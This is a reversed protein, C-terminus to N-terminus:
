PNTLTALDITLTVDTITGDSLSVDRKVPKSPKSNQRFITASLEYMGAPIGEILFHGRADVQPPRLYSANEGPKTLRVFIRADAPLPGNEINVAGRLTATGYGVIVRVGTVQEGDKVELRPVVIGDREIRSISFGKLPYPGNTASLSISVAGTALGGLRFSGDAAIPSSASSAYSASTQVYGRMQMQTLKSLAAKDESELVVVGSVSAGKSLKVVVGTIDQDIVDFNSTEVQMENKDNAFLVVAYKGAPLAEVIFDGRANSTVVTSVFEYRQGLLRQLGFRMNPAPMGTESNIVRGSASFVQVPRGLTIDVNNAESGESVEVVTAKASDSVDPHFVQKFTTQSPSYAGVGEDGRGAAVKFRGATIGFLRYIGRDDTQGTVEPYALRQASRQDLSDTRYVEVQQQIVPRGDADTVKGTIVGGRVLAFNIGEVDEDEGVVVNKRGNSDAAVFAPAAPAVQYTGPGLNTIRYVGDADTVAKTFPEYPSAIEGKRLGVVVGPAPKDKITIRGSVSGCPTKAAAQKIPSQAPVSAAFCFITLLAPLASRASSRM